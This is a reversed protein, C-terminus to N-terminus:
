TSYLQKAFKQGLVQYIKEKIAPPLAFAGHHVAGSYENLLGAKKKILADIRYYPRDPRYCMKDFPNFAASDTAIVFAQEYGFFPIHERLIWFYRFCPEINKLGELFLELAHPTASGDGAQTVFVGNELLHNKVHLGFGPLLDSATAIDTLDAFIVHFLEDKKPLYQFVDDCYIVLREDQWAGQHIPELHKIAIALFEKDWDILKIYRVNEYKRVENVLGFDGGGLIGVRLDRDSLPMLVPHVFLQHYKESDGQSCQPSGDLCLGVGFNEYEDIEVLQRSTKVKLIPRNVQHCRMIGYDCRDVKYSTM